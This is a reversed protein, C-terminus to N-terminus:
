KAAAVPKSDKNCNVEKLPVRAIQTPDLDIRVTVTADTCNLAVALDKSQQFGAPLLQKTEAIFKDLYAPDFPEGTKLTWHQQIEDSNDSKGAMQLAGMRFQPGETIDFTLKIRSSSLTQTDPVVTFNLYGRRLYQDRMSTLGSRVKGTSFFDGVRLPLLSTLEESSLAQNGTFEFAGFKYRPGESVDAEVRVPKPRALPDLPRVKLNSVEADFYGMQQFADRIRDKIEHEDDRFRRSTLSNSIDELQQSDLTGTGSIIVEQTLVQNPRESTQSTQSLAATTAAFLLFSIRLSRM